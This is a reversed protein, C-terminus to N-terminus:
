IKTKLFIMDDGDIKFGLGRYFERLREEDTEHDDPYCYGSISDIDDHKECWDIFRKMEETAYGKGRHESETRILMVVQVRPEMDCVENMLEVHKNKPEYNRM